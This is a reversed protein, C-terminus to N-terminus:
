NDGFMFGVSVVFAGKQMMASLRGCSYVSPKVDTISSHVPSTKGGGIQLYINNRMYMM